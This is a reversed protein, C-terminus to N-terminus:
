VDDSYMELLTDGRNVAYGYDFESPPPSLRHISAIHINGENEKAEQNSEEDENELINKPVELPADKRKHVTREDDTILGVSMAGCHSKAKLNYRVDDAYKSPQGVQIDTGPPAQVLLIQDNRFVNITEDKTLYAFKCNDQEECVNTMSQRIWQLHTDLLREERELDTLQNKIKQLTQEEQPKLDIDGGPKRLQGGRWLIVNKTKKEILGIGELVNTIDYIRRKQSVNLRESTMVFQNVDVLSHPSEQLFKIFKKTLNGLSKENRISAEEQFQQNQGEMEEEDEYEEIQEEFTEVDLPELKEIITHFGVEGSVEPKQEVIVEEDQASM